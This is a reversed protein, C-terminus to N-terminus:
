LTMHSSEIIFSSHTAETTELPINGANNCLCIMLTPKIGGEKESGEGKFGKMDLGFDLEHGFCDDSYSQYGCLDLPRQQNLFAHLFKPSSVNFLLGVIAM